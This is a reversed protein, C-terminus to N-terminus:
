TVFKKQVCVSVSEHCKKKKVFFTVPYRQLDLSLSIKAFHTILTNIGTMYFLCLAAVFIVTSKKDVQNVKGCNSNVLRENGSIKLLFRLISGIVTWHCCSKQKESVTPIAFGLM